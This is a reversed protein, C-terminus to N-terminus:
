IECANNSNSLDVKMSAITEDEAKHLTPQTLDTVVAIVTSSPGCVEAKPSTNL